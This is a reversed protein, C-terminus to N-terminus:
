DIVVVPPVRADDEDDSEVLDPLPRTNVPPLPPPPAWTPGAMMDANTLFNNDGGDNDNVEEAPGQMMRELQQVAFPPPLQVPLVRIPGPPHQQQNAQHQALLYNIVLATARVQHELCRLREEVPNIYQVRRVGDSDYEDDDM